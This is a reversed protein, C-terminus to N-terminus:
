SGLQTMTQGCDLACLSLKIVHLFSYIIKILRKKNINMLTKKEKKPFMLFYYAVVYACMNKKFRCKDVSPAFLEENTASFVM